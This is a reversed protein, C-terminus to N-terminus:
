QTHLPRIMAAKKNMEKLLLVRPSKCAVRTGYLLRAQHGDNLGLDEHVAVVVDLGSGGHLNSNNILQFIDTKTQATPM